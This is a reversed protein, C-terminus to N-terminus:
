GLWAGGLDAWTYLYGLAEDMEDSSGAGRIAAAVEAAEEHWSTDGGRRLARDRAGGSAFGDLMDEVVGFRGARVHEGVLLKYEWRSV